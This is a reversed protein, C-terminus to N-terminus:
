KDGGNGVETITVSLRETKGNLDEYCGSGIVMCMFAEAESWEMFRFVVGGYTKSVTVEFM